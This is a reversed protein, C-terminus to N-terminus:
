RSSLKTAKELEPEAAKQKGASASPAAAPGGIAASAAVSCCQIGSCWTNLFDLGALDVVFSNLQENRDNSCKARSQM